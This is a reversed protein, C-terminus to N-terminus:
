TSTIRTFRAGSALLLAHPNLNGSTVNMQVKVKDGARLMIKYLLFSQNTVSGEKTEGFAISTALDGLADSKGGGLDDTGWSDDYASSASCASLALVFCSAVLSATRKM